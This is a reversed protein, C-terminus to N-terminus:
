SIWPQKRPENITQLLATIYGYCYAFATNKPDKGNIQPVHDPMLMYKYGIEQYVKIVKVFDISGEDPFVEMFDLKKGRINRFHVNFIKERKGFWRIIDIIEKNPDDLMETITGQCFNLGHFPNEYLNVFKKLGNTTGLVRNIGMFGDPTYPDHPHCALRVGSSEAVPVVRELFYGIREWIEEENVVGAIGPPTDHDIKSWRFTSNKSNGRGYESESRPIGIINMNYKVAPIGVRGCMEIINQISEIETDRQPSKGLMINPSDSKEIVQSSLPIQVMDLEIGFSNVKEKHSLLDDESWLHPNGPPDSCINFVGLQAWQQFDDDNRAQVQTGLYM